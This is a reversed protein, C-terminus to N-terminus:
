CKKILDQENCIPCIGKYDPLFDFSIKEIGSGKCHECAGKKSNFSYFEKGFIKKIDDFIESFTLITNLNNKSYFHNNVILCNDVKKAIEEFLLTTKGSGSVGIIATLFGKPISISGGKLNNANLKNVIIKEKIEIKKRKIKKINLFILLTKNDEIINSTKGFRVIRGGEDGAGKGLELLYDSEKIIEPLHEITILTNGQKVIKKFIKIMKKADEIHLGKSPEDFIFCVDCLELNLASAIKLRNLEGSSLTQTKRNLSLYSISVSKLSYLIKLINKFLEKTLPTENKRKECFYILEDITM